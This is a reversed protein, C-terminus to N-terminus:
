QETLSARESGAHDEATGESAANAGTDAGEDGGGIFGEDDETFSDNALTDNYEQETMMLLKINEKVSLSSNLKYTGPYLKLKYLRAQVRFALENTIVGDDCLRAALEDITEGEDITLEIDTGPAEEAAEACFIGFGANFCLHAAAYCLFVALTVVIVRIAVGSIVDSIGNESYEDSRM